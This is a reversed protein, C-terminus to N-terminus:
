PPELPADPRAQQQMEKAVLALACEIRTAVITHHHRHYEIFIGVLEPRSVKGTSGDLQIRWIGSGSMGQLAPINMRSGDFQRVQKAQLSLGFHIADRKGGHRLHDLSVFERLIVFIPRATIMDFSRPLPKNKSHPYGVLCYLTLPDYPAVTGIEAESCYSFRLALERGAEEPLSLIAVDVDVSRGPLFDFSSSGFPFRVLSSGGTTILVSDPLRKLVHAAILLFRRNATEFPVGSGVLFPKGSQTHLTYLPCVRDGLAFCVKEISDDIWTTHMPHRDPQQSLVTELKAVLVDRKDAPLKDLGAVM